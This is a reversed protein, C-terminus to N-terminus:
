KPSPRSIRSRTMPCRRLCSRAKRTRRIPPRNDVVVGHGIRDALRQGIYRATYDSGGGPALPVIVRIPRNPFDAQAFAAGAAFASIVLAASLGGCIQPRISSM